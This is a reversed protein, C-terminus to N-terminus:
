GMSARRLLEIADPRDLVAKQVDFGAAGTGHDPMVERLQELLDPPLAPKTRTDLLMSEAAIGEAYIIQHRDFLLQFYDVFGGARVTVNRGDVLHRAKVLLDSHGTGLADSRQYVFLRHDPSVVLDGYNNLTGEKIVIPAFAGTARVTSQGIWRIAKPGENRTLVRDGVTLDEIPIQAGSALTIRTGRTFSVCAVQALVQRAREIEVSVVMYTTDSCLPTIPHLFVEGTAVNQLVMVDVNAGNPSMLILACDLRVPMGAGGLESDPGIVFGGDTAALTLRYQAADPDLAYIDDPFLEDATGIPEGRGVGETVYIDAARYVPMAYAPRASQFQENM